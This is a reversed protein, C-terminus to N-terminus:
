KENHVKTKKYMIFFLTEALCYGMVGGAIGGSAMGRIKELRIINGEFKEMKTNEDTYDLILYGVYEQISDEDLYISSEKGVDACHERPVIVGKYDPINKTYLIMCVIGIVSSCAIIYKKKQKAALKLDDKVRKWDIRKVPVLIDEAARGHFSLMLRDEESSWREFICVGMFLFSINKYSTNFLLPETLGAALLAFVMLLELGKQEKVYKHILFLYGVAMAGFFLVGYAILGYVYSCDMTKTADTLLGINNGFLRINEKKLFLGSLYLRTNLLKNIIDFLRGKIVLPGAVSLLVCLPFVCECTIQEIKGFKGRYQWYLNAALYVTVVAFGTYSVSYLFVYCNGAFMALCAKWNFRERLHYVIFLLLILYSIHLVNPHPQGMGWRFIHGLGLKDHVKYISSPLHFLSYVFMGGFSLSWIKLGWRMVTELRVNKLGVIMWTYFLIGKEGSYKYITLSLAVMGAIFVFDKWSYKTVALKGIGFLLSLMVFCTFIRQGDYLGIGKAFFLAGFSLGYLIEGLPISEKKILSEMEVGRRGSQEFAGM